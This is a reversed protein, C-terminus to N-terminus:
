KLLKTSDRFFIKGDLGQMGESMSGKKISQILKEASVRGMEAMPQHIASIGPRVLASWGNADYGCVGIEEPIALGRREIEELAMFLTHTNVAFIAKHVNPFRAWFRDFANIVLARDDGVIAYAEDRRMSFLKEAYALFTECMGKKVFSDTDMLFLTKEFGQEKLHSMMTGIMEEHKAYAGGYPWGKVKRTCLTVPIGHNCLELYREATEVTPRIILGDVQQNLCRQIAEAEIDQDDNTCWLVMSYGNDTCVSNIETVTQAGVQYRLSNTIVGIVNSKKLKLSRAVGNPVYGLRDIIEKIRQKTEFSMYEYNGNLYRSITTKSVNAEKAIDSITIKL